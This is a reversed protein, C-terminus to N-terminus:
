SRLKKHIGAILLALGAASLFAFSIADRWSTMQFIRLDLCYFDFAMLGGGAALAAGVVILTLSFWPKM